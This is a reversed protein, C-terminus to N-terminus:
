ITFTLGVRHTSFVKVLDDLGGGGTIPLANLDIVTRLAIGTHKTITNIANPRVRAVTVLAVVAFM